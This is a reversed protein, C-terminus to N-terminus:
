SHGRSHTSIYQLSVFKREDCRRNGCRVAQPEHEVFWDRGDGSRVSLVRMASCGAEDVIGQSGRGGEGVSGRVVARDIVDGISTQCARAAQGDVHVTCAGCLAQGCGYKTGTLALDDRLIWLLPKDPDAEIEKTQGNLTIRMVAERALNM